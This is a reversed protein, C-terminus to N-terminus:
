DYKYGCLSIEMFLGLSTAQLTDLINFVSINQSTQEGLLLAHSPCGVEGAYLAGHMGEM